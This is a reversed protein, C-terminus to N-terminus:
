GVNRRAEQWYPARLAQKDPKGLATEPMEDIVDISKPTNVAGKTSRVFAIIADVDPSRGPWPVIVAKVAEGWRADPVGFVAAQAVDPHSALADEVEKPYVNFGGSIIMDKKRDVIYLYGREDERALDGTRLWGDRFAAATEEPRRWYGDMVLPGRVCIEGVDGVAVPAGADDLLKVQVGVMPFGCSLLQGPRDPDHDRTALTTVTMPAESQAYLQLFVPGFIEMAEALLSPSIPAAGYVVLKLSSLDADRIRPHTTLAYIM